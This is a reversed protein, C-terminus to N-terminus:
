GAHVSLVTKGPVELCAAGSETPNEHDSAQPLAARNRLRVVGAALIAAVEELREDPTLRAADDDRSM